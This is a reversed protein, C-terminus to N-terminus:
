GQSADKLCSCLYKWVRLIFDLNEKASTWRWSDTLSRLKVRVAIQPSLFGSSILRFTQTQEDNCRSSAAVELDAQSNCCQWPKGSPRVQFLDDEPPAEGKKLLKKRKKKSLNQQEVIKDYNFHKHKADDDEMLLAM